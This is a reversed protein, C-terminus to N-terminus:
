VVDGDGFTLYWSSPQLWDGESEPRVTLTIRSNYLREPIGFLGLRRLLRRPETGPM